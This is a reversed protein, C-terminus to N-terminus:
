ADVMKVGSSTQRVNDIISVVQMWNMQTILATKGVMADIDVPYVSVM